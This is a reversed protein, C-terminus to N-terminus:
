LASWLAFCVTQIVPPLESCVQSIYQPLESLCVIQRGCLKFNTFTSPSICSHHEVVTSVAFKAKIAKHNKCGSNDPEPEVPTFLCASCMYLLHYFISFILPRSCKYTKNGRTDSDTVIFDHGFLSRTPSFATVSIFHHLLSNSVFPATPSSLHPHFLMHIQGPDCADM